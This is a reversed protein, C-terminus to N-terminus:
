EHEGGPDDKDFKVKTGDYGIMGGRARGSSHYSNFRYKISLSKRTFIIGGIVLAHGIVSTTVNIGISIFSQTILAFIFAWMTALVMLIQFRTVKPLGTNFATNEDFLEPLMYKIIKYM